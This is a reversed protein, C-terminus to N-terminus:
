LGYNRLEQLQWITKPKYRDRFGTVKKNDPKSIKKSEEVLYNSTYSVSENSPGPNFGRKHALREEWESVEGDKNIDAKSPNYEEDETQAAAIADKVPKIIDALYAAIVEYGPERAIQQIFNKLQNLDVIKEAVYEEVQGLAFEDVDVGEEGINDRINKFVKAATAQILTAEHAAGVKAKSADDLGAAIIEVAQKGEPSQAQKELEKTQKQLEIAAKQAEYKSARGGSRSTGRNISVFRVYKELGDEVAQQVEESRQLIVDKKTELASILANQKSKFDAGARLVSDVEDDTFIELEGLIRCIYKITDYPASSLGASRLKKTVGGFAPSIKEFPSVRAETLVRNRELLKSFNM